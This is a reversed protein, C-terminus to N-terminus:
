INGPETVLWVKHTIKTTMIKLSSKTEGSKRTKFEKWYTESMQETKSQQYFFFFTLQSEASFM